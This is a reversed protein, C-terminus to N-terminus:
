GTLSFGASLRGIPPRAPHGVLLKSVRTPVFIPPSISPVRRFPRPIYAPERRARRGVLVRHTLTTSGADSPPMSVTGCGLATPPRRPRVPRSHPAFFGAFFPNEKCTVLPPLDPVRFSSCRDASDRLTALDALPPPRSRRPSPVKRNASPISVVFFTARPDTPETTQRPQRSLARPPCSRLSFFDSFKKNKEQLRDTPRDQRLSHSRIASRFLYAAWLAHREM